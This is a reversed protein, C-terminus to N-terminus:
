GCARANRACTDAIDARRRTAGWRYVTLTACRPTGPRPAMGAPTLVRVRRPVRPHHGAIRGLCVGVSPAPPSAFTGLYRPYRRTPTDSKSHAKTDGRSLWATLRQIECTECAC